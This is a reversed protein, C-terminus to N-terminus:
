SRKAESRELHCYTPLSDRRKQNFFISNRPDLRRETIIKM